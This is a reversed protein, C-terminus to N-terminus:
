RFSGRRAEARWADFGELLSRTVRSVADMLMVGTAGALTSERFNM